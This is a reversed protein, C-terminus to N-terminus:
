LLSATDNHNRAARRFAAGIEGDFHDPNISLWKAVLQPPPEIPHNKKYSRLGFRLRKAYGM